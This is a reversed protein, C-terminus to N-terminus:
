WLWGPMDGINEPKGSIGHQMYDAIDSCGSAGGGVEIYKSEEDREIEIEPNEIIVLSLYIYKYLGAPVWSYRYM